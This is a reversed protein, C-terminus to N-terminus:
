YGEAMEADRASTGGSMYADNVRERYRESRGEADDDYGNVRAAYRVAKRAEARKVKDIEPAVGYAVGPACVTAGKRALFADIQEASTM